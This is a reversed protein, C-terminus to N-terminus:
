PWWIPPRLSKYLISTHWLSVECRTETVATGLRERCTGFPYLVRGIAVCCYSSDALGGRNYKLYEYKCFALM